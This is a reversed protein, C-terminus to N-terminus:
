LDLGAKASATFDARIGKNFAVAGAAGIMAANDTTCWLPPISLAIDPYHEMMLTLRQRLRSNASVGGALVVQKVDTIELAKRLKLLLEDLVAEQFAYALNAKNLQRNM